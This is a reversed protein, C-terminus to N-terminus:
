GSRRGLGGDAAAQIASVLTDSRGGKTVFDIAGAERMSVAIAEDEHMSLGIVRIRPLEAAIQRTAELGNMRPMTVDMVIVDPRLSRALEIAEIGDSAEGVVDINPEAKLLAILGQRLISHDDAIVVRVRGSRGPTRPRQPEEGTAPDPLLEIVPAVEEPGTKLLARLTVRAGRGPASEVSMTGGFMEMRQRVSFLGFTAEDWRRDSLAGHDFGKGQDEVVIRLDGADREMTIRAELVGSHKV